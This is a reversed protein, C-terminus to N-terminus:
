ACGGSIKGGSGGERGVVWYPVKGDGGVSNMRVCVRCQNKHNEEVTTAGWGLEAQGVEGAELRGVGKAQKFWDM